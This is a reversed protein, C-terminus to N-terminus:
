VDIQGIALGEEGRDKVAQSAICTLTLLLQRGLDTLAYEGKEVRVYGAHVLEKLHYYLNGGKIGVAESLESSNREMRFMAQMLRIRAEHALPSLMREVKAGVSPDHFGASVEGSEVDEPTPEDGGSVTLSSWSLISDPKRHGRNAGAWLLIFDGPKRVFEHWERIIPPPPEGYCYLASETIPGIDPPGEKGQSGKDNAPASM